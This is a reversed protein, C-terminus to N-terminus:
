RCNFAELVGGDIVNSRGSMWSSWQTGDVELFCFKFLDAVILREWSEEMSRMRSEPCGSDFVQFLDAVIEPRELAELVGGDVPNPRGSM